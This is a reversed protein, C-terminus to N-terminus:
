KSIFLVSIKGDTSYTADVEHQKLVPGLASEKNEIVTKHYFNAITELLTSRSADVNPDISHYPVVFSLDRYFDIGVDRSVSLGYVPIGELTGLNWVRVHERNLLTSSSAYEYAYNQPVGKFYLDSIPLLKDEAQEFYTVPGIKNRVFTNVQLWGTKTLVTDIPESTIMVVNIPQVDQTGNEYGLTSDISNIIEDVSSYSINIDSETVGSLKHNGLFFIASLFVVYFLILALFISALIKLTKKFHGKERRILKSLFYIVGARFSLKLSILKKRFYYVIAGVGITAFVAILLYREVVLLITQYNKGFLYGVVLFQGIGLIVAPFDFLTFKSYKFKFVGALFPTIWSVPGLFRGTFVSWGGFRNFFNEGQLYNQETFYRRFFWKGKLYEYLPVGWKRGIWYSSHDGLLGGLYLVVAVQWLSAKGIGALIAGALFFFEGYVLFSSIILTEFYAGLFLIVLTLSQHLSLFNILSDLSM